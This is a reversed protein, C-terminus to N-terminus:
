NKKVSRLWVLFWCKICYCVKVSSDLWSTGSLEGSVGGRLMIFITAQFRREHLRWLIHVYLWVHRPPDRAPEYPLGVVTTSLFGNFIYILEIRVQLLWSVVAALLCSRIIFVVCPPGLLTGVWNNQDDSWATTAVQLVVIFFFWRRFLRDECQVYCTWSCSAFPLSFSCFPMTSILPRACSGVMRGVVFWLSVDCSLPPPPLFFSSLSIWLGFRANCLLRVHSDELFLLLVSM